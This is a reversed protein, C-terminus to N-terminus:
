DHASHGDRRLAQWGEHRARTNGTRCCRTIVASGHRASYCGGLSVRATSSTVDLCTALALVPRVNRYSESLLTRASLRHQGHFDSLQPLLCVGANESHHDHYNRGLSGTSKSSRTRTSFIEARATLARPMLGVALAGPGARASCKALRAASGRQRRRPLFAALLCRTTRDHPDHAIKM